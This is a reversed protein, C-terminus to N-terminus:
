FHHDYDREDEALHRLAPNLHNILRRRHPPGFVRWAKSYIDARPILLPGAVLGMPLGGWVAYQDPGLHGSWDPYSVADEHPQLAELPYASLPLPRGNLYLRGGKLTLSDGPVALIRHISAWGDASARVIDGRAPAQRRYAHRFLLHDGRDFVVGAETMQSAEPGPPGLMVFPARVTVHEWALNLLALCLSYAGLTLALALLAYGLNTATRHNARDLRAVDLVSGFVIVFATLGMLAGLPTGVFALWTLAAFVFVALLALGAIRRGLLLHALGPVVAVTILASRRLDIFCRPRYIRVARGLALARQTSEALTQEARRLRRRGRDRARPPELAAASGPILEEACRACFPRADDNELGCAPCRM